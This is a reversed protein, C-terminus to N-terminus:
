SQFIVKKKKIENDTTLGVIVQGLKSAKKLLRIHGHHLISASLDVLVRKKMYILLYKKLIEAKAKKKLHVEGLHSVVSGAINGRSQYLITNQNKGILKKNVYTCILPQMSNPLSVFKKFKELFKIKNIKVSYKFDNHKKLIEYLSCITHYPGTM